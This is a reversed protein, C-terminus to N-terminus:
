AVAEPASTKANPRHGVQDMEYGFHHIWSALRRDLLARQDQTAHGTWRTLMGPAESKMDLPAPDLDLWAALEQRM